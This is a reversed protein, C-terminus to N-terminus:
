KLRDLGKVRSSLTLASLGFLGALVGASWTWPVAATPSDADFPRPEEVFVPSPPPRRRRGFLGMRPAAAQTAAQQGARFLATLKDREPEARILAERVRGLNNGYSVLPAWEVKATQHIADAAIGGGIWIAMWIAGVSRSNRSLSSIALMLTGASAIMVLCFGLSALLLPGTDRIVALDLSFALGLLYAVLVPLATVAGIYVAIVGFKGLFYEYRRIPRSLYLPIANFRLDQSILDPGVLLVLIMSFFMQMRFFADFALTWITARFARPGAKLEEPLGDGLLALLPTILSSKQEFLGWLVLAAALVLSLMLASFLAYRVPKNRWQTRVGQRTIALWRLGQGTRAGDWHQYGQDFIPM